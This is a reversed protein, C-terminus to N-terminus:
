RVLAWKKDIKAVYIPVEFDLDDSEFVLPDSYDKASVCVVNDKGGISYRLNGEDLAPSTLNPQENLWQFTKEAVDKLHSIDKKGALADEAIKYNNLEVANSCDGLLTQQLGGIISTIESKDTDTLTTIPEAEEWLKTPAAKDFDFFLEINDQNKPELPTEPNPYTLTAFIEGPTPIEYNNDHLFISIKIEGRILDEEPLASLECSLKNEGSMMWTTIDKAVKLNPDDNHIMVPLNNMKIATHINKATVSLFYYATTM